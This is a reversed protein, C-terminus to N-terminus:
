QENKKKAAQEKNYQVSRMYARDKEFRSRYLKEFNDQSYKYNDFTVMIAKHAGLLLIPAMIVFTLIMLIFHATIKRKLDKQHQLNELDIKKQIADNIYASREDTSLNDIIPTFDRSVYFIYKKVACDQENEYDNWPSIEKQEETKVEDQKALKEEEINEEFTDEKHEHFISREDLDGQLFDAQKKIEENEIEIANKENEFVESDDFDQFDEETESPKNNKNLDEQM